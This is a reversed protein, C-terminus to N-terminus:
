FEQTYIDTKADVILKTKDLKIKICFSIGLFESVVGDSTFEFRGQIDRAIV